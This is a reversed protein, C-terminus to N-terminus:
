SDPAQVLHTGSLKPVFSHMLAESGVSSVPPTCDLHIWLGPRRYSPAAVAVPTHPLAAPDGPRPQKRNVAARPEPLKPPVQNAHM